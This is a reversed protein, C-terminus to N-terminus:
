RLFRSIDGDQYTDELIKMHQGIKFGEKLMASCTCWENGMSRLDHVLLVPFGHSRQEVLRRNSSGFLCMKTRWCSWRGTEALVFVLRGDSIQRMVWITFQSCQSRIPIPIQLPEISFAWIRGSESPIESSFASIGGSWCSVRSEFQPILFEVQCDLEFYWFGALNIVFRTEVLDRGLARGLKGKMWPALDRRDFGDVHEEGNTGGPGQEGDERANPQGLQSLCRLRPALFERAGSGCSNGAKFWFILWSEGFWGHNKMIKQMTELRNGWTRLHGHHKKWDTEGFIPPADGFRWLWWRGQPIGWKRLLLWCYDVYWGDTVLSCNFFDWPFEMLDSNKSFWSFKRHNVM